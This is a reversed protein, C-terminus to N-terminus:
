GIVALVDENKVILYDQGDIKVETGSYRGYIVKQRAKVKIKDSEGTAIVTGQNLKEGSASDPLVIGSATKQEPKEPKLLINEGLPRVNTKPM